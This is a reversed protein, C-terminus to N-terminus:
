QKRRNNLSEIQSIIQTADQVIKTMYGRMEHIGKEDLSKMDVLKRAEVMTQVINVANNIIGNCVNTRRKDTVKDAMDM